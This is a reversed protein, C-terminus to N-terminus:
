IDIVEVDIKRFLEYIRYFANENYDIRRSNLMENYLAVCRIEDKYLAKLNFLVTSVYSVVIGFNEEAIIKEACRNTEIINFGHSQYYVEDEKRGAPHNKYYIEVGLSKLSNVTNTRLVTWDKEKILQWIPQDIFICKSQNFHPMKKSTNLVEKKKQSDCDVFEVNLAYVYKIEKRDVGFQSGLYSRYRVGGRLLGNLYKVLSRFFLM